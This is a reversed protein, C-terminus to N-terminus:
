EDEEIEDPNIKAIANFIEEEYIYLDRRTRVRLQGDKDLYVSMETIGCNITNSMISIDNVQPKTKSEYTTDDYCINGGFGKIIPENNESSKGALLAAIEEPMLEPLQKFRRLTSITKYLLLAISNIAKEKSDTIEVFPEMGRKFFLWASRTGHVLYKRM